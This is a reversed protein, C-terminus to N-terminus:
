ERRRSHHSSQQTERQLFHMKFGEEAPRNDQAHHWLFNTRGCNHQSIVWVTHTHTYTHHRHAHTHPHHHQIM